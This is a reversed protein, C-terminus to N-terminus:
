PSCGVGSASARIPSRTTDSHAQTKLLLLLLALGMTFPSFLCHYATTFASQIRSLVITDM